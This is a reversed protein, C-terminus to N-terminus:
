GKIYNAPNSEFLKRNLKKALFSSLYSGFMHLFIPSLESPIDLDLELYELDTLSSQSIFPHNTISFISNGIARAKNILLNFELPKEFIVIPTNKPYAFREGHIWSDSEIGLALIGTSEMIKNASYKATGYNPGDGIFIIHNSNKFNDVLSFSKLKIPDKIKDLLKPFSSLSNVTDEYSSVSITSKIKGIHLGIFALTLLSQQYTRIAPSASKNILGLSLNFTALKALKSEYNSTIAITLMNNNNAWELSTIVNTTNGSASIGIVLKDKENSIEKTIYELFISPSYASCKLKSYKYIAHKMSYASFLSDGNGVIIIESIKSLSKQTLIKSITEQLYKISMQFDKSLTEIEDIIIKPELIPM